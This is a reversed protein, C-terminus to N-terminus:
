VATEEYRFYIRQGKSKVEDLTGIPASYIEWDAMKRSNDDPYRGAYVDRAVMAKDDSLKTAQTSIYVAGRDGLTEAAQRSDFVTIFVRPNHDLNVSHIAQGHSVWYINREDYAFHVPTGWPEDDASVTALTCYNNFKLISVAIDNM